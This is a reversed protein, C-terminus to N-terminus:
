GGHDGDADPCLQGVASRLRCLRPREHGAANGSQDGGAGAGKGLGRARRRHRPLAPRGPRRDIAAMGNPGTAFGKGYLEAPAKAWDEGGALATEGRLYGPDQSFGGQPNLLYGAPAGAAHAIAADLAGLTPDRPNAAAIQQRAAQLKQIPEQALRATIAAEPVGFAEAAIVSRIDGRNFGLAAFPDERSASGKAAAAAGSNLPGGLLGTVPAHQPDPQAVALPGSNGGVPASVPTAQSSPGGGGLVNGLWGGLLGGSGSSSPGMGSGVNGISDPVGNPYMEPFMSAQLRMHALALMNGIQNKQAEQGYLQGQQGLLRAQAGAQSGALMGGAGMGLAAGTPVPLRSPMAAQGLGQILGLMSYSGPDNPDFGLLGPM